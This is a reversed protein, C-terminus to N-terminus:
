WDRQSRKIWVQRISIRVMETAMDTALRAMEPRLEQVLEEALAMFAEKELQRTDLAVRLTETIQLDPVVTSLVPIVSPMKASCFESESATM